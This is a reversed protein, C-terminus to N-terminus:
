NHANGIRCAGSAISGLPIDDVLPAPYSGEILGVPYRGGVAVKAAVEVDVNVLVADIRLDNCSIVPRPIDPAPNNRGSV